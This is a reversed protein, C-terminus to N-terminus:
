DTLSSKSFYAAFINSVTAIGNWKTRMKCLTSKLGPHM